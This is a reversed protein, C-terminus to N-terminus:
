KHGTLLVAELRTHFKTEEKEMELLLNLTETHAQELNEIKSLLEVNQQETKDVRRIIVADRKNSAYQGIGVVSEVVIALLSYLAMWRFLTAADDHFFGPNIWWFISLCINFIVWTWRRIINQAFYSIRDSFSLLDGTLPDNKPQFIARIKQWKKHRIKVELDNLDHRLM